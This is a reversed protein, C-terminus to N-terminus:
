VITPRTIIIIIIIIIIIFILTRKGLVAQSYGTIRVESGINLSGINLSVINLSVINLRCAALARRLHGFFIDSTHTLRGFIGLGSSRRSVKPERV